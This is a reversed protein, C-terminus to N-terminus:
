ATESTAGAAWNPRALAAGGGSLGYFSGSGNDVIDIPLGSQLTLIGGLQWDKLVYRAFNSSGQAGPLPLTWLGSLVFRHKRDFDSLGRNATNVLQNGLIGSTEGVGGPNVVGGVGAGGGQGSANDISKAFTYS